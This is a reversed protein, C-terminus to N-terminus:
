SCYNCALPQQMINNTHKNYPHKIISLISHIPWLPLNNQNNIPVGPLFNLLSFYKKEEESPAESPPCNHFLTDQTEPARISLHSPKHDRAYETHTHSRATNM